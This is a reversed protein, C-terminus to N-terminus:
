AAPPHHGPWDALDIWHTGRLAAAIEPETHGPNFVHHDLDCCVSVADRSITDIRMVADAPLHVEALTYHRFQLDPAVEMLQPWNPCARSSVARLNTDRAAM